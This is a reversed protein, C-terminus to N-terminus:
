STLNIGLVLYKWFQVHGLVLIQGVWVSRLVGGEGMEMVIGYFRMGQVIIFVLYILMLCRCTASELPMKKVKTSEHSFFFVKASWHSAKRAKRSQGRKTGIFFIAFIQKHDFNCTILKICWYSHLKKRNNKKINKLKKVHVNSTMSLM